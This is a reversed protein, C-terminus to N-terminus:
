LKRSEIIQGLQEVFLARIKEYAFDKLRERQGALVATRLTEDQVLRETLLAAELPDDKELLLGSGGLTDPVACRNRAIIPVDFYMAEALPVCFGEHASMCLFVDAARYCALIESFKIQGTFLVDELELRQVYDKLRLDYSEMGTPSGALILRSKPNRKKFHYFTRILHEQRKNPAIRGVFLLNTYGDKTLKQLFAGDPKQAYDEFPILIPRVFSECDYGAAQLEAANFASDAMCFDVQGRLAKLGELGYETLAAAAANYPRFFDPPTINHYIMVKTCHFEGLRFNLDTGTSLHYLLVDEPKLGKLERVHLAQKGIRPDINEAFIVTDYGMEAIVRRLALADNSVADGFSITPLLQVVRM